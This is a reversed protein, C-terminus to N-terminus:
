PEIRVILMGQNFQYHFTAGAVDEPLEVSREFQHYAIELQHLCCGTELCLDRRVGSVLIRNSQISVSVDEPAVGALEFKLLWGQSLRYVDVPPQWTQSRGPDLAPVFLAHLSRRPNMAM